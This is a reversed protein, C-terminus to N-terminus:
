RWNSCCFEFPDEISLYGVSGEDKIKNYTDEIYEITTQRMTEVVVNMLNMIDNAIKEQRDKGIRKGQLGKLIPSYFADVDIIETVVENLKYLEEENDIKEVKVNDCTCVHEMVGALNYEKYYRCNRCYKEMTQGM